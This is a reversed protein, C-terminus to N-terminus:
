AARRSAGTLEAMSRERVGPGWEPSDTHAVLDGLALQGSRYAEFKRPGLIRLQDSEELAAFMQAGPKLRHPVGDILPVPRCRCNVHSGFEEGLGHVSGHLAWCVPCTRVSPTAMWVWGEIIDDNARYNEISAGRYARLQETRAITLAKNPGVTEVARTIRRAVERPGVGQAVGTILQDQIAEAALPGMRGFVRTLPSGDSFGGVLQELAEANARNFSISITPQASRRRPLAIYRRASEVAMQVATAKEALVVLQAADSFARVQQSSQILLEELRGRRFLWAETIVEGRAVAEEMRAVLAALEIEIRNYASSWALLLNLMAQRERDRLRRRFENAIQQISM